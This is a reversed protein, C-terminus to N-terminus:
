DTAAAGDQVSAVDGAGAAGGGARESRYRGPPVGALRTFERTLHAQDYYGVDLALRALPASADREMRRVALRFRAVRCAEKPTCGVERRFLRELQRRSLDVAEALRQVPVAGASEEVLSVARAVRPERGTDDRRLGELLHALVTLRESLPAGALREHWGGLGRVVDDAPPRSGALEDAPMRLLPTAGGPRFRVGLLDVSGPEEVVSATRMLGVVFAPPWARPETGAARPQDLDFIIDSCGDPLIRSRSKAAAGGSVRRTWFCEVLDTLVPPPAHERYM